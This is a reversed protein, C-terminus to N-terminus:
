SPPVDFFADNVFFAGTTIATNTFEVNVVINTKSANFAIAFMGCQYVMLYVDTRMQCVSQGVVRVMCTRSAISKTLDFKLPTDTPPAGSGALECRALRAPMALLDLPSTEPSKKGELPRATTSRERLPPYTGDGLMESMVGLAM